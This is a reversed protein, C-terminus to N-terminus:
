GEAGRLATTTNRRRDPIDNVTGFGEIMRNHRRVDVWLDTTHDRFYALPWDVRLLVHRNSFAPKPNIPTKVEEVM